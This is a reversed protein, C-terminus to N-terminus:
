FPIKFIDVLREILRDVTKRGVYFDESETDTNTRSINDLKNVELTEILEPDVNILDHNNLIGKSVNRPKLKILQQQFHLFAPSGDVYVNGLGKHYDDSGPSIGGAVKDGKTYFQIYDNIGRVYFPNEADNEQNFSPTNISILNVRVRYKHYLIDAAQIAVNGGHSYGILTIEESDSVLKDKRFNVVYDVLDLAALRRYQENNFQHNMNQGDDQHWPQDWDFKTDHIKNNTLSLLVDKTGQM